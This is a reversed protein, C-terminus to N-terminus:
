RILSYGLGWGKAKAKNSQFAVQVSKWWCFKKEASWNKKWKKKRKKKRNWFLVFVFCFFEGYKNYLRVESGARYPSEDLAAYCSVAFLLVTALCVSGLSRAFMKFRFLIYFFLFFFQFLVTQFFVRQIAFQAGGRKKDTKPSTVLKGEGSVPTERKVSPRLRPAIPSLHNLCPVTLIQPTEKKITKTLVWTHWM